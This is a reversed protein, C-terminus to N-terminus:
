ANTYANTIDIYQGYKCSGQSLCNGNASCVGNTCTGSDICNNCYEHSCTGGGSRVGCTGYHNYGNASCSTQSCGHSNTGHSNFGHSNAGNNNYAKNRCKVLSFRAVTDNIEDLDSSIIIDGENVTAPIWWGAQTSLYEDTKFANIKTNLANIANNDINTYQAPPSGLTTITGGYSQIFTDFASYIQALDNQEIKAEYQIAM